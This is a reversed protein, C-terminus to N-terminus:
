SFLEGLLSRGFLQSTRRNERRGRGFLSCQWASSSSRWGQGFRVLYRLVPAVVSFTNTFLIVLPAVQLYEHELHTLSPSYIKPCIGICSSCFLCQLQGNAIASSLYPVKSCIGRFHFLYVAAKSCIQWYLTSICHSLQM